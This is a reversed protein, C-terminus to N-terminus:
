RWKIDGPNVQPTSNEQAHKRYNWLRDIAGQRNTTTPDLVFYCKGGILPMFTKGDESVKVEDGDPPDDHVIPSEADAAKKYVDTSQKKCAAGIVAIAVIVAIITKKM